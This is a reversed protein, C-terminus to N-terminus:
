HRRGEDLLYRSCQPEGRSSLATMCFFQKSVKTFQDYTRENVETGAQSSAAAAFALEPCHPRAGTRVYRCSYFVLRACLCSSTKKSCQHFASPRNPSIICLVDRERLSVYLVEQAIRHAVGRFVCEARGQKNCVPARVSSASSM